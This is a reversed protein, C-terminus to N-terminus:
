RVKSVGRVFLVVESCIDRVSVLTYLLDNIFIYFCCLMDGNLLLMRVCFVYVDLRCIYIGDFDLRLTGIADSFSAGRHRPGFPKSPTRTQCVTGHLRQSWDITCTGDVNVQPLQQSTLAIRTGYPGGAPSRNM